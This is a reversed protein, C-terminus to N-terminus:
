RAAAHMDDGHVVIQGLAVGFPHPLDVPEQPQGYAADQVVEVVILAALGIAAVDGVARVVLEAEIIQAIIHLIGDLLHHLEAAPGLLQLPMIERNDVLHVRDQDVLRARREDNRAGDLVLGAEVLGDILENGPEALLMEFEVLFHARNDEVVFAILEHLLHQLLGPKQLRFGREVIDLVHRHDMVRVLRKLRVLQEHAVLVVDHLVALDDDDVFEGAAHHFAAAIRFAQVLRKLGLFADLDLRLVLREGRDGELVIEAEVLLERAHGAGRQGLGGLELVDVLEFGKFDRRVPRHDADVAVVLDVPRLLLLVLRDDGQDLFAVM